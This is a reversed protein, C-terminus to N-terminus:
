KKRFLLLITYLVVTIFTFIIFNNKDKQTIYIGNEPNPNINKIKIREVM